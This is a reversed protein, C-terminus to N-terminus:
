RLGAAQFMELFQRETRMDISQAVLKGQRDYLFSNPIGEIGFAKNVQRDPDLLVAFTYNQKKLFDEVKERTEDSVALVVLGKSSFRRYLKEMDPMERRCPPCWTAWFNLLVVKGRLAALDYTKGDLAALSFGSEQVVLDHLELLATAADVSPDAPLPALHEYRVLKALELYYFAASGQNETLALALTSAAASLAEKGLDGETVLNALGYSPSLKSMGAPLARIEAVVELVLKARDADTPLGRVQGMKKSIAALEPPPAPRAAAAPKPAPQAGTAPKPAPPNPPSIAAAETPALTTLMQMVSPTAMEKNAHLEQLVPEIFKQALAPHRPQLTEAALLQFDLDLAKPTQAAKEKVIKAARDIAAPDAAFIMGAALFPAALTRFSFM